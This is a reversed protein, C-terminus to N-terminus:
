TRTPLTDHVVLFVVGGTEVPPARVPTFLATVPLAIQASARAKASRCRSQRCPPTAWASPDCSTWIPPVVRVAINVTVDALRLVDAGVAAEDIDRHAIRFDGVDVRQGIM